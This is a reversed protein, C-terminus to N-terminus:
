GYEITLLIVIAEAGIKRRDCRSAFAVGIRCRQLVRLSHVPACARAIWGTEHAGQAEGKQPSGERHEERKGAGMRLVKAVEAVLGPGGLVPKWLVADMLYKLGAVSVDPEGGFATYGAEIANVEFDEILFVGRGEGGIVDAAEGM